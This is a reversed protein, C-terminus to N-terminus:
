LKRRAHQTIGRTGILSHSFYCVPHDIGDEGEQLLVAGGGTDSADVMLKFPKGFDPAILVPVSLLLSKIKIFAAQCDASWIFPMHKQLLRTLLETVVSFNRCFKRYYGLMGLFRMLKHKNRPTPFNSIAQVKAFVPAIKGQGVVHGL